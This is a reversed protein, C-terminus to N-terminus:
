FILSRFLGIVPLSGIFDRQAERLTSGDVIVIDGRYIKPDDAEGRRIHVLDFAAAMREGEITRFVVVRRPNAAETVGRASAITELLSMSGYVPFRGPARVAGDVTVVHLNSAKVGVSVQPDQLYESGLEAELKNEIEATTLNAVKVSGILPMAIQGTLDVELSGSLAPVDFVTVTLLDMPAVRYDEEVVVVPPDPENFEEVDYPVPGGRGVCAALSLACLLM